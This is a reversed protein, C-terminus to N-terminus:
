GDAGADFAPKKGTECSLSVDPASRRPYTFTASYPFASGGTIDFSISGELYGAGIDRYAIGFDTVTLVQGNGRTGSVSLLNMTTPAGSTMAAVTTMPMDLEYLIHSDGHTDNMHVRAHLQIAGLAAAIKTSDIVIPSPPNAGLGLLEVGPGLGTFSMGLSTTAEGKTNVSATAKIQAGTFYTAVDFVNFTILDGQKGFSTDAGLHLDVDMRTGATWTGKGDFVFGNPGGNSKGAAADIFVGILSTTLSANLGGCVVMEHCSEKFDSAMQLDDDIAASALSGRCSELGPHAPNVLADVAPADNAPPGSKSSASCGAGFVICALTGVVFWARASRNSRNSLFNRM